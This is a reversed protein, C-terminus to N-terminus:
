EGDEIKIAKIGRMVLYYIDDLECKARQFEHCPNNVKKIGMEGNCPRSLLSYMDNYSKEFLTILEPKTLMSKKSM